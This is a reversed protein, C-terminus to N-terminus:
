RNDQLRSASASAPCAARAHSRMQPQPTTVACLAFMLVLMSSAKDAAIHDYGFCLLQQRLPNGSM